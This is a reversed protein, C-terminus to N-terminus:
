GQPYLYQLAILAKPPFQEMLFAGDATGQKGGPRSEVTMLECLDPAVARVADLVDILGSHENSLPLVGAAMAEVLVMGFAESAKSGVVVISALPLIESLASHQLMGTILIRAREEKTIRRFTRKVQEVQGCCCPDVFNGAAGYAMLTDLDGDEMAALMGEMHERYGGFGVLLLRAKPVKDLILPFSLLVEGVGKTDLFKGLYMIVPEDEQFGGDPWRELLDADIAFQDYSACVETLHKHLGTIPKRPLNIKAAVRGKDPRLRIAGAVKEKFREQNASLSERLNFVEPDMGPPVIVMKKALQLEEYEEQFTERMYDMIYRTGCVVKDCKEIAEIAYKKFAPCPKLVFTIGSGHIKIDFPVGTGWLARKAIVPSLLAHNALLRHVGQAVVKKLGLVMKDIYNGIEEETCDPIAKVTFGEYRDYVFVPLLRDIDPVIVRLSGPPPPTSPINETGIFCEDVYDYNGADLDQCVCTVAHGQRKWTAAVNVSYINSGTGSLLYGHLLVLHHQASSLAPLINDAVLKENEVDLAQQQQTLAQEATLQQSCVRRLIEVWGM